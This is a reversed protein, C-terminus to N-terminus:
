RSHQSGAQYGCRQGRLPIEGAHLNTGDRNGVAHVHQHPRSSVNAQRHTLVPREDYVVLEGAKGLLDQRRYGGDAVARHAEHQVGVPVAIMRAAVLVEALGARHDYGVLVHAFAHIGILEELHHLPRLLRGRVREGDDGEAIRHREIPVAFLNAGEVHLVGVGISVRDDMEDVGVDDVHAIREEVADKREDVEGAPPRDVAQNM